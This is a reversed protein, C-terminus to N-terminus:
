RMEIDIHAGYRAKLQDIEKGSFGLSSAKRLFQTLEDQESLEPKMREGMITAHKNPTGM